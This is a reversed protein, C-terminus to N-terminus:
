RNANFTEGLAGWSWCFFGLRGAPRLTGPSSHQAFPSFAKERPPYSLAGCNDVGERSLGPFNTKRRGNQFQVRIPENMELGRIVSDSIRAVFYLGGEGLGARIPALRDVPPGHSFGLIIKCNRKHSVHKMLLM